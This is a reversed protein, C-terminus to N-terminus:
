QVKSFQVYVNNGASKGNDIAEQADERAVIAALRDHHEWLQAPTMKGVSMGVGPMTYNLDQQSARDRLVNQIAALGKRAWSRGDYGAAQFELGPKVILRGSDVVKYESGDDVRAEWYYTGPALVATVANSLTVDFEDGDAVALVDFSTDGDLAESDKKGRFYYNLTWTSAPYDGWSRTWKVTEGVTFETPEISAVPIPM